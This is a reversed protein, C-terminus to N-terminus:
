RIEGAMRRVTYNNLDNDPQVFERGARGGECPHYITHNALEHGRAAAQRWKPIQGQLGGFYDSIYFTGKLGLSDLAPVVNNLHVNLGDDYTLVVACKKGKWATLNQAIAAGALSTIVLLLALRKKM